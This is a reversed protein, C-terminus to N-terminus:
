LQKIAWKVCCGIGRACGTPWQMQMSCNGRFTPTPKILKEPHTVLIIDGGEAWAMAQLEKFREWSELVAWILGAPSASSVQATSSLIKYGQLALLHRADSYARQRQEDDHGNTRIWIQKVQVAKLVKDEMAALLVDIEGGALDLMPMWPEEGDAENFTATLWAGLSIGKVVKGKAPLNASTHWQVAADAEDLLIGTSKDRPALARQDVCIRSAGSALNRVANSAVQSALKDSPSLSFVTMEPQSAAALISYYGVGSGAEVFIDGSAATALVRAFLQEEEGVHLNVPAVNSQAHWKDQAGCTEIGNAWRHWKGCTSAAKDIDLASPLKGCHAQRDSGSVGQHMPPRTDDPTAQKKMQASATTQSRTDAPVPRIGPGISAVDGANVVRLAQVKTPTKTRPRFSELHQLNEVSNHTSTHKYQVYNLVGLVLVLTAANKTTCRM